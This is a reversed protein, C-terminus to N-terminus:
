KASPAPGGAQRSAKLRQEYLGFGFLYECTWEFTMEVIRLATWYARNLGRESQAAAAMAKLIQRYRRNRSEKELDAILKVLARKAKASPRQRAAELAEILVHFRAGYVSLHSIPLTFLFQRLEAEHVVGLNPYKEVYQAQFRPRAQPKAPSASKAGPPAVKKRRRTNKTISM